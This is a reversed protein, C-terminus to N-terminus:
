PALWNHVGFHHTETAKLSEYKWNMPQRIEGVHTASFKKSSDVSNQSSVQLDLTNICTNGAFPQHTSGTGRCVNTVCNRFYTDGAAQLQQSHPHKQNDLHKQTGTKEWYWSTNACPRTTPHLKEPFKGSFITFKRLKELSKMAESLKWIERWRGRHLHEAKECAPTVPCMSCIATIGASGHTVSVMLASVQVWYLDAFLKRKSLIKRPIGIPLPKTNKNKFVRIKKPNCPEFKMAMYFIDAFRPQTWGGLTTESVKMWCNFYWM